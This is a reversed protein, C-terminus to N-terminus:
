LREREGREAGDAEIARRVASRITEEEEAAKESAQTIRDLSDQSWKERRVREHRVQVDGDIMAELALSMRVARAIRSYALAIEAAPGDDDVLRRALTLGIQALEHAAELRRESRGLAGAERELNNLVRVPQGDDM